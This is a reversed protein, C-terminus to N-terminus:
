QCNVVSLKRSGHPPLRRRAPRGHKTRGRRQLGALGRAVARARAPVPELPARRGLREPGADREVTPNGDAGRDAEARRADRAAPAPPNLPSRQSRNIARNDAPAPYANWSPAGPGWLRRETAPGVGEAHLYTAELLSIPKLM